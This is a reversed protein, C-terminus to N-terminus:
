DDAMRWRVAYGLDRLKKAVLELEEWLVTTSVTKQSEAIRYLRNLMECRVLQAAIHIKKDNM